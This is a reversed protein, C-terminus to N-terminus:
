AVVQSAVQEGLVIVELRKVTDPSWNIKINLCDHVSKQVWWCLILTFGILYQHGYIFMRIEPPATAACHILQHRRPFPPRRRLANKLRLTRSILQAFTSAPPDAAPPSPSSLRPLLERSRREHGVHGRRTFHRLPRTIQSSGTNSQSHVTPSSEVFM